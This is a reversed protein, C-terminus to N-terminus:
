MALSCLFFATFYHVYLSTAEIGIFFDLPHRSLREAEHRIDPFHIMDPHRHLARAAAEYLLKKGVGDQM